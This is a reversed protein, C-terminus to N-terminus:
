KYRHKYRYTPIQATGYQDRSDLHPGRPDGVHSLGLMNADTNADTNVDTNADTNTYTNTGTFQDRSDGQTGCMHSLLHLGMIMASTMMMMQMMMIVYMIMVM